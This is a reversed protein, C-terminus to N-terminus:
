RAVSGFEDAFAGPPSQEVLGRHRSSVHSGLRAAAQARSTVNLKELVKHVHNKVTSVEISLRLAIEKNSLGGDILRLVERERATLVVVQQARRGGEAQTELRHFLTAAMRPTCLLEDRLVSEMRVILDDLSADCPVYGALGAEACALIEGEIEEVGFGIVRAQPVHQHIVRGIALSQKTTMDVIVVDPRTDRTLRIADEFNAAAGVVAFSPRDAISARLGERYLRVEAVIL